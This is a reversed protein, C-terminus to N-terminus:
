QAKERPLSTEPPASPDAGPDAETAQLFASM